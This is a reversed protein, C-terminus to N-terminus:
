LAEEHANSIKLLQPLIKRMKKKHNSFWIVWYRHILWQILSRKSEYSNTRSLDADITSKVCLSSDPRAPAPLVGCAIIGERFCVGAWQQDYCMWFREFGKLIKEAGVRTYLISTAEWPFKKPFTLKIKMDDPKPMVEYHRGATWLKVCEWGSTRTLIEEISELFDDAFLVDDENLVCYEYDSELFTKIGKLHSLICALENPLLDVSYELLRRKRDYGPVQDAVLDKGPIATILQVPLGLKQAQTEIHRRRDVATELNIVLHLTRECATPYSTAM